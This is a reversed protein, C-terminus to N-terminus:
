QKSQEKSTSSSFPDNTRLASINEFRVMNNGRSNLLGYKATFEDYLHNLTRQEQEILHDPYGELQYEILRRTCDRIKVMGKIRNQATVSLEVKHM